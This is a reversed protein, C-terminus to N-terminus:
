VAAVQCQEIGDDLICLTTGHTALLPVLPARLPNHGHGVIIVVAVLFGIVRVHPANCSSRTTAPTLRPLRCVVELSEKLLGTWVVCVLDLV